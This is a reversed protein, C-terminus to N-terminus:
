VSVDLMEPHVFIYFRLFMKLLIHFSLSSSMRKLPFYEVMNMAFQKFRKRQIFISFEYWVRFM